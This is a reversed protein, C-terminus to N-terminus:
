KQVHDDGEEDGTASVPTARPKTRLELLSDIAASLKEAADFWEAGERGAPDHNTRSAIQAVHATITKANMKWVNLSSVATLAVTSISTTNRM